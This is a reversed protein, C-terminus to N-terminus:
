GMRNRVVSFPAHADETQELFVACLLQEDSEGLCTSGCCHTDRMCASCSCQMAVTWSRSIIVLEDLKMSNKPGMMMLDRHSQNAMNLRHVGTNHDTAIHLRFSRETGQSAVMNRWEFRNETLRMFNNRSGEDM